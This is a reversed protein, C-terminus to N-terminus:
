WVWKEMKLAVTSFGLKKYLAQAEKNSVSVRLELSDLGDKKVQAFAKELFASAIGRRRWKPDVYLGDCTAWGLKPKEEVACFGIIKKTKPERATYILNSDKFAERAAKATMEPWIVGIQCYGTQKEHFVSLWQLERDQLVRLQLGLEKWESSSLKSRQELKIEPAASAMDSARSSFSSRM